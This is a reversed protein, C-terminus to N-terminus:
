SSLLRQWTATNKGVRKHESDDRYCTKECRLALTPPALHGGYIVGMVTDAFALSDTQTHTHTLSLTHTVLSSVIWVQEGSVTSAGATHLGAHHTHTHTDSSM